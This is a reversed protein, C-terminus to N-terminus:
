ESYEVELLKNLYQLAKLLDEKGNKHRHRTVYKIVNGELFTMNKDAIFDWCEITGQTYGKPHVVNADSM